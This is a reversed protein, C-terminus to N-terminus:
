QRLKAGVNTSGRPCWLAVETSNKHNEHLKRPFIALILPQRGVKRISAGGQRDFGLEAVAQESRTRQSLSCHIAIRENTDSCM